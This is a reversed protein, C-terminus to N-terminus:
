FAQVLPIGAQMMTALQRSFIAIDETTIKSRKQFLASQRRITVPVLGQRRLNAKVAAENVAVLSGKILTGKADKGQWNFPYQKAANAM